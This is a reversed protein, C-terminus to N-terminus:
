FVVVAVLTTTLLIIIFNYIDGWDENLRSRRLFSARKERM